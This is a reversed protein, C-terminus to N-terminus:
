DASTQGSEEKFYSSLSLPGSGEVLFVVLLLLIIISYALNSEIAFIGKQLNIFIIAGLLVPIQIFAAFRTFLGLLILFGGVIHIWPIAHAMWDSQAALNSESIQREFEPLNDLFSVGRLLLAVGLAVRFLALWKPNHNATWEEFNKYLGM